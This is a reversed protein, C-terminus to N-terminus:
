MLFSPEGNGESVLGMIQEMADVGFPKEHLFFFFILLSFYYFYM